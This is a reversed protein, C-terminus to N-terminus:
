LLYIKQWYIRHIIEINETTFVTRSLFTNNYWPEYQLPLFRVFILYHSIIYFVKESINQPYFKRKLVTKIPNLSIYYSINTENLQLCAFLVTFTTFRLVCMVHLFTNCTIFIYFPQGTIVRMNNILPLFHSNCEFIFMHRYIVWKEYKIGKKTTKHNKIPEFIFKAIFWSIDSIIAMNSSGMKMIVWTFIYGYLNYKLDKTNFIYLYIMNSLWSTIWHYYRCIWVTCEM